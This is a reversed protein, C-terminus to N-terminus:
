LTIEKIDAIDFIAKYITGVLMKRNNKVAEDDANVM